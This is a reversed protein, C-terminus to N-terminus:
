PYTGPLLEVLILAWWRVCDIWRGAQYSIEELDTNINDEWKRSMRRLSKALNRFASSTEGTQTVNNDSRDLSFTNSMRVEKYVVAIVPEHLEKIHLM